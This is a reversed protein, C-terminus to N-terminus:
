LTFSSLTSFTNSSSSSFAANPSMIMTSPLLSTAESFFNPMLPFILVGLLLDSSLKM